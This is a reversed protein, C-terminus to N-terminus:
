IPHYTINPLNNTNHVTNFLRDLQLNNFRNQAIANNVQTVLINIRGSVQAATIGWGTTTQQILNQFRGHRNVQLWGGNIQFGQILNMQIFNCLNNAAANNNSFFDKNLRMNNRSFYIHLNLMPIFTALANYYSICSFNGNDTVSNQCPNQVTYIHLDGQLAAIGNFVEVDIINPINLGGMIINAGGNAVVPFPNLHHSLAAIVLQRETHMNTDYNFLNIWNPLNGNGPNNNPIPNGLVFPRKQASYLLPVGGIPFFAAYGLMQWNIGQIFLNNQPNPVVNANTTVFSAFTNQIIVPAGVAPFGNILNGTPLLVVDSLVTSIFLSFMFIIKKLYGNLMSNFILKNM